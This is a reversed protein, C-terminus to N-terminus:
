HRAAAVRGVLREAGSAHTLNALFGPENYQRCLEIVPVEAMAERNVLVPTMAVRWTNRMIRLMNECKANRLAELRPQIRAFM